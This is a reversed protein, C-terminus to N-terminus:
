ASPSPLFGVGCYVVYPPVSRPTEKEVVKEDHGFHIPTLVINVREPPHRGVSSLFARFPIMNGEGEKSIGDIRLM